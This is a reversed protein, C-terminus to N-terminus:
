LECYTTIGVKDGRTQGEIRRLFRMDTSSLGIKTQRKAFAPICGLIQLQIDVNIQCNEVGDRCESRQADGGEIKGDTINIDHTLPVVCSMFIRRNGDNQRGKKVKQLQENLINLINTQSDYKKEGLINWIGANM